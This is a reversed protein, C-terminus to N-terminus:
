VGGDDKHENRVLVGLAILIVRDLMNLLVDNNQTLLAQISKFVVNNRGFNERLPLKQVLVPLVQELPVLKSNAFILRAIEGCVNDLVAASEETALILSLAQLVQTYKELAKEGAHFVLEGLALVASQRVLEYEDQLGELFLPLLEDFWKRTHTHLLQFSELMMGCVHSRESQLHKISKAIALKEKLSPLLREFYMAFESSHIACGLAIFVEGAIGVLAHSNGCRPKFNSEIAGTDLRSKCVVERSMIDSVSSFIHNKLEKNFVADSKMKKLIQLYAEFVRVSVSTIKKGLMEAFKPILRAVTKQSRVLDNLQFSSIVFLTLAQIAMMRFGQQRHDLLIYIAEFCRQIYPVFEPGAFEALSKLAAIAKEKEHLTVNEYSDEDDLDIAIGESFKLSKLTHSVIKPLVSVMDVTVKVMESLATILGYLSARSASDAINHEDLLKFALKMTDNVIPKFNEKGINRALWALIDIAQPRLSIIDKNDTLVLYMKLGEMLQPLHPLM